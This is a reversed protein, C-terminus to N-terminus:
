TKGHSYGFLFDLRSPIKRLPEVRCATVPIVQFFPYDLHDGRDITIMMMAVHFRSPITKWDILTLYFVEDNLRQSPLYPLDSGLHSTASLCVFAFEGEIVEWEDPVREDLPPVRGACHTGKFIEEFSSESPGPNPSPGECPVVETYKFHSKGFVDRPSSAKLKTKRLLTKDKVPKYSVRAKYKAVTPLQAIRIVAEMHLRIMGAWRFRESGLDIDAILGWVASLFMPKHGDHETEVHLVRLPLYRPRAGMLASETCFVDRASFPENCHYCLSAALANGTGGPIHLVPVKLARERDSRKLFGTIVESVLGDGSVVAVGDYEDIDLKEAIETGHGVRETFVVDFDLESKEFVPVVHSNWLQLAKKQGSYPNILVLLKNGSTNRPRHPARKRDSRRELELRFARCRDADELEVKMTREVRKAKELVFARIILIKPNHYDTGIHILDKYAFAGVSGFQIENVHLYCVLKQRIKAETEIFLTEAIVKKANFSDVNANMDGPPCDIDM